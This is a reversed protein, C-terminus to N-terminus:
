KNLSDMIFQLKKELDNIREEQEKIKKEQERIKLDYMVFLSNYNLTLSDDHPDKGVLDYKDSDLGAKELAEEVDQAIYGLRIEDDDSDNYKFSVPNISDFVDIFKSSLDEIDHKKNRDSTFQVSSSSNYVKCYFTIQNLDISSNSGIQMDGNLCLTSANINLESISPCYVTKNSSNKYSKIYGIDLYYAKITYEGKDNGIVASSFFDLNECIITGMSYFDSDCNVYSSHHSHLTELYLENAYCEANFNIYGDAYLNIDGDSTNLNLDNDAKINIDGDSRKNYIYNTYITEFSLEASHITNYKYSSGNPYKFVLGGNIGSSDVFTISADTEMTGGSLQLYKDSLKVNNEYLDNTPNVYTGSPLDATATLTQSKNDFLNFRYTSHCIVEYSVYTGRVCVWLEGTTKETSNDTIIFRIDTRTIGIASKIILQYYPAEGLASQQKFRIVCDAYAVNGSGHSNWLLTFDLFADYYQFTANVEGIKVWYGSYNDGASLSSYTSLSKIYNGWNASDLITRWDTWKTNSVDYTRTQLHNSSNNPLFLQSDYASTTDWNFHLITGDGAPQSETLASSAKFMKMTGDTSHTINPTTLRDELYNIPAFHKAYNDRLTCKGIFSYTEPVSQNSPNVTVGNPIKEFNMLNTIKFWVTDWATMTLYLYITYYTSDDSLVAYATVSFPDPYNSQVKIGNNANILGGTGGTDFHLDYDIAMRSYRNKLTFTM